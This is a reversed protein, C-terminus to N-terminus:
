PTLVYRNMPGTEGYEWPEATGDPRFGAAAAVAVSAVNEPHVIAVVAPVRLATFAWSTALRVARAAYGRRRWSPFVIYSVNARGDERVRIEVGGILAEGRWIGFHRVSGGDRWETRWRAIAGIVNEMPAPGPMEFWRRQEDDEGEKWAEADEPRLARLAVVGDSPTAWTSDDM